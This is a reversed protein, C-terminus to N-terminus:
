EHSDASAPDLVSRLSQMTVGKQRAIQGLRDTDAADAPLDLQQKISDVSRGLAAAAEAITM